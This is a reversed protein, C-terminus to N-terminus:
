GIKIYAKYVKNAITDEFAKQIDELSYDTTIEKVAIMHLYNM